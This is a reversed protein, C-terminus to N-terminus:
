QAGRAIDEASRREVLKVLRVGEPLAVIRLDVTPIKKAAVAESLAMKIAGRLERAKAQDQLVGMPVSLFLLDQLQGVFTVPPKFGIDLGPPDLASVLEYYSGSGLRSDVNGADVLADDFTDFYLVRDQRVTAYAGKAQPWADRNVSVVWPSRETAEYIVESVLLPPLRNAALDAVLRSPLSM